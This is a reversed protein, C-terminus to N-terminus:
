AGGASPVPWPSATLAPTWAWLRFRSWRWCFFSSSTKLSFLTQKKLDIVSGPILNLTKPPEQQQQSLECWSLFYIKCSVWLLHVNKDACYYSTTQYLFITGEYVQVCRDRSATSNKFTTKQRKSLWLHLVTENSQLSLALAPTELVTCIALCSVHIKWNRPFKWLSLFLNNEGRSHHSTKKILSKNVPCWSVNTREKFKTADKM